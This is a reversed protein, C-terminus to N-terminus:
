EWKEEMRGNQVFKLGLFLIVEFNSKTLIYRKSKVLLGIEELRFSSGHGVLDLNSMELFAEGGLRPVNRPDIPTM